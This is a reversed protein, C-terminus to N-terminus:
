VTALASLLKQVPTVLSPRVPSNRTPLSVVGCGTNASGPDLPSVTGLGAPSGRISRYLWSTAAYGVLIANMRSGDVVLSDEVVTELGGETATGGTRPVVNVLNEEAFRLVATVDATSSPYVIAAPIPGDYIGHVATYKRFRDVSAAKLRESGTEVAGPGLLGTMAEVISQRSLPSRSPAM